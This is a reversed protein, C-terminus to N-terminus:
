DESPLAQRADRLLSFHMFASFLFEQIKSHSFVATCLGGDCEGGLEFVVRLPPLSAHCTVEIAVKKNSVAHAAQQSPSGCLVRLGILAVLRVQPSLPWVLPGLCCYVLNLWVEGRGISRWGGGLQVRGTCVKRM